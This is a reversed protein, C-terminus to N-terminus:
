EFQGALARWWCTEHAMNLIVFPSLTRSSLLYRYNVTFTIVSTGFRALTNPFDLAHGFPM